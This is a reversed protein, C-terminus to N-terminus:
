ANNFKDMEQKKLKDVIAIYPKMANYDVHGTWKMVVAAPIGLYMANVIFTRRGCHTSLLAHKPYVDEFRESGIFYVIRVPTNFKALKGLEKLYDNMRQNSIVPLAKDNEFHFDQYKELIAKSYKNLEIKLGTVTKQTVVNLYGKEIDIDAKQLKYVDSWRLSTFCCFCFMDRVKELHQKEAPIELNYFKILEEWELYIITKHRGDSGKFNPKFTEHLNGPYYNNQKAWRLFWNTLSINKATTTNKQKSNQLHSILVRLDDEKLSSLTLHPNIEEFHHKLTKFKTITPKSWSNQLSMKTIFEELYELLNKETKSPVKVQKGLLENFIEVFETKSPARKEMIEFRLFVEEVKKEYEALASNIEKATEGKSNQAKNEVCSNETNWNENRISFGTSIDAREGKWTVRLRIPYEGDSTIRSHLNFKTTYKTKM